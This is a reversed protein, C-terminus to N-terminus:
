CLSSLGRFLLSFAPWQDHHLCLTCAMCIFMLLYVQTTIARKDKTGAYAFQKTRDYSLASIAQITDKNQKHLVFRLYNPLEPPWVTGVNARNRVASLSPSM